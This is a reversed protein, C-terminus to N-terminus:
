KQRGPADPCLDLWAQMRGIRGRQEAMRRALAEPDVPEERWGAALGEVDGGSESSIHLLVM